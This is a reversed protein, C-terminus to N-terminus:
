FLLLFILLINKLCLCDRKGKQTNEQYVKETEKKKFGKRKKKM